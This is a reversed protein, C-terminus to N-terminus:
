PVEFAVGVFLSFTASCCPSRWRVVIAVLGARHHLGLYMASSRSINLRLMGGFPHLSWHAGKTAIILHARAELAM